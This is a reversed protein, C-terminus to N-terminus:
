FQAGKASEDISVQYEFKDLKQIGEFSFNAQPHLKFNHLFKMGLLDEDGLYKELELYDNSGFASLLRSLQIRIIPDLQELPTESDREILIILLSNETSIDQSKFNIKKVRDTDTFLLQESFVPYDLITTDLCQYILLLIEDNGSSLRSLDESLNIAHLTIFVSDQKSILSTPESHSTIPIPSVKCGLCLFIVSVAITYKIPFM